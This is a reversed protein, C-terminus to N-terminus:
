TRGQQKQRSYCEPRAEGGNLEHLLLILVCAYSAFCMQVSVKMLLYMCFFVVLVSVTLLFDVNVRGLLVAMLVTLLGTFVLSLVLTVQLVYRPSILGWLGMCINAVRRDM